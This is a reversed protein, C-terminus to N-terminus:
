KNLAADREACMLRAQEKCEEAFTNYAAFEEPKTTAQRLLALEDDQSYRTHILRAVVAKYSWVMWVDFEIKNGTKTVNFAKPNAQLREYRNDGEMEYVVRHRILINNEM